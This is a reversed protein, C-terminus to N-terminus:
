PVAPPPTQDIEIPIAATPTAQTKTECDPIVTSLFRNMNTPPVDPFRGESLFTIQEERNASLDIMRAVQEEMSQIPKTAQDPMGVLYPKIFIVIERTVNQKNRPSFLLNGLIPLDGLLFLKGRDNNFTNERLGGLIIVEQDIASVFSQAQRKGIV